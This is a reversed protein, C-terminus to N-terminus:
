ADVMWAFGCHPCLCKDGLNLEHGIPRLNAPGIIDGLAPTAICELIPEKCRPCGILDGKEPIEQRQFIKVERM